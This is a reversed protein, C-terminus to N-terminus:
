PKGFIVPLFGYDLITTTDSISATVGGDAQSTATVTTIDVSGVVAPCLPQVTVSFAVTEGAALVFSEAESVAWGQSSALNLTFTDTYNGTNILFHEYIAANTPDCRDPLNQSDSDLLMVGPAHVLTIVAAGRVGESVEDSAAGYDANVLMGSAASDVRVVLTEQRSQKPELDGPAWSLLAGTLTPAGTASVFSTNAPLTDTLAVNHTVSVPQLNEVRLTYTLLGGRLVVASASKEVALKQIPTTVPAGSVPPIGTSAAGYQANVLEELKTTFPARVTLTVQRSALPDLDGLPWFIVRDTLTYPKSAAVFEAGAPLTDSVTVGATPAMVATHTVTLTYTLAAGPVILASSATKSV